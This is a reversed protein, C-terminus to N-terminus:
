EWGGTELEAFTGLVGAHRIAPHIGALASCHYRSVSSGVRHWLVHGTREAAIVTTGSGLFPDLVVDRRSTCDMIADAALAVPKVTPHTRGLAVKPNDCRM